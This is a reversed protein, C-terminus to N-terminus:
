ALPFVAETNWSDPEQTGTMLHVAEARANIPLGATIEGAIDELTRAVSAHAVTLHPVEDPYAGGYPAYGPWERVLMATTDMFRQPRDPALFLM